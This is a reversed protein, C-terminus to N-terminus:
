KLKKLFQEPIFQKLIPIQKKELVTFKWNKSDKSNALAIKNTHVLFSGTQKNFTVNESGYENKLASLLADDTMETGNFKMQMNQQYNIEVFQNGKNQFFEDNVIINIPQDIKVDIENSNFMQNMVQVLQNKPVIRLFDENAYLDLAKEFKKEILLTNYDNFQNEIEKNVNQALFPITFIISLFLFVKRM